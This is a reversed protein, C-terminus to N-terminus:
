NPGQKGILDPSPDDFDIPTAYDDSNDPVDGIDFMPTSAHEKLLALVPEEPSLPAPESLRELKTEEVLKKIPKIEELEQFKPSIDTSNHILSTRRKKPIIWIGERRARSFIIVAGTVPGIAIIFSVYQMTFYKALSQCLQISIVTMFYGICNYVTLATGLLEPKCASSALASFQPSDSTVTWGWLLLLLVYLFFSNYGYFIPHVIGCFGSISINLTAASASTMYKTAWGQILSGASGASIVFFAALSVNIGPIEHVQAYQDIMTPLFGWFSYQEWMHGYYGLSAQTYDWDKFIEVVVQPNFKAGKKLLPGDPVLSFMSVGGVAALVSVSILTAGWPLQGGAGKILHPFATGLALACVVSGMAFGLGENYWGKAIKLAVPYIGALCFGILFRLFLLQSLGFAFLYISANFFAGVLCCVCFVRGPPYQDALGAFAFVATGVIFGVQVSSTIYAVLDDGLVWAKQLDRVVANGAFWLSTGAFTAATIVPLIYPKRLSAVDIEGNSKMSSLNRKM